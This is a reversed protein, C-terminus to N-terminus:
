PNAEFLMIFPLGDPTDSERYVVQLDKGYINILKEVADEDSSFQGQPKGHIGQPKKSSFLEYYYISM